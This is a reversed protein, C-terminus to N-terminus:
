AVEKLIARLREMSDAKGILSLGRDIRWDYAALAYEVAHILKELRTSTRSLDRRDRYSQSIHEMASMLVEHLRV